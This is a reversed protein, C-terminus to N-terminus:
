IGFRGSFGSYCGFEAYPNDNTSASPAPAAPAPTPAVVPAPSSVTQTQPNRSSPHQWAFPHPRDPRGGRQGNGRRDSFQVRGGRRDRKRNGGAGGGRGHQARGEQLKLNTRFAKEAEDDSFEVDSDVGDIHKKEKVRQIADDQDLKKNLKELTERNAAALNLGKFPTKSFEEENPAYYVKMGIPFLSAEERTNFRVAYNPSKVQGFIDYIQGIVDAKEDFLYSDFDLIVNSTSEIVVICDVTKSIYGFEILSSDCKITLKEIPPLNDYENMINAKAANKAGRRSKKGNESYEVQHIKKILRSSYHVLKDFEDDSDLAESTIKKFDDGFESGDDSFEYESETDCGYSKVSPANRVESANGLNTYNEAIQDFIQSISQKKIADVDAQTEEEIKPKVYTESVTPTRDIIIDDEGIPEEKIEKEEIHTANPSTNVM